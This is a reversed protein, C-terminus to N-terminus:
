EEWPEGMDNLPGKRWKVHYDFFLINMGGRHRYRGRYSVMYNAGWTPYITGIGDCTRATQSPKHINSLKEGGPYASCFSFSTYFSEYPPSESPCKFVEIEEYGVFGNEVNVSPNIYPSLLAVWPRGGYYIVYSPPSYNDYDEGYLIFALGIQKQNNKCVTERGMGMATALAPMLMSALIAIIAIVVLLEILTFRSISLSKRRQRIATGSESESLEGNQWPKSHCAPHYRGENGLQKPSALLRMSVWKGAVYAKM